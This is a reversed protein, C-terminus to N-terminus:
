DSEIAIWYYGKPAGENNNGISDVADGTIKFSTKSVGRVRPMEDDQADRYNRTIVVNPVTDFAEPFTVPLPDAGTTQQFGSQINPVNKAYITGDSDAPTTGGVYLDGNPIAIGRPSNFIGGWAVESSGVIAAADEDNSDCTAYVGYALSNGATNAAEARIGASYQAKSNTTGHLGYIRGSTRDAEGKVGAAGDTQSRTIGLVGHVATNLNTARGYVGAMDATDSDTRGYVGYGDAEAFVGVPNSDPCIAGVNVIATTTETHDLLDGSDDTGFWAKASKLEDYEGYPAPYYTTLTVQREASYALHNTILYITILLLLIFFLKRM